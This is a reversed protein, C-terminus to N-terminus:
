KKKELLLRCVLDHRTEHARLHTYSVAALPRRVPPFADPTHLEPKRTTYPSPQGVTKFSSDSDDSSSSFDGAETRPLSPDDQAPNDDREQLDPTPQPAPPPTGM